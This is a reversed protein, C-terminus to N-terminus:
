SAAAKLIARAALCDAGIQAILADLSDFRAEGRMHRAPRVRLTKGYIDRSFDLIHAEVQGTKLAFMPRIGINVAAQLWPADPGDEAIQVHAAYVGYAPHITEGLMVNATPYGLERGRRDGQVITGEIEWPWGLWENAQKIDGRTLAERIASASYFMDGTGAKDLASVALGAARLHDPTGKRLQGFRFDAGVFIHSPALGNILVSDIFADASQSAFDWTFPLAHVADVGCSKLLRYKMAPPTIRFPPADPQFLRRPHPEFTLVALKKGTEGAKARAAALLARHGRHVGDFNGIALVAQGSNEIECSVRM